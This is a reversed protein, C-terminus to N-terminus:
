FNRWLYQFANRLIRLEIARNIHNIITRVTCRCQKALAKLDKGRIVGYPSALYALEQLTHFFSEKLDYRRRIAAILAKAM